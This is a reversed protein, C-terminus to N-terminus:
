GGLASITGKLAISIVKAGLLIAGGIVAWFLAAKAEEIKKANGQATVFQFGAYVIFLVLVPLGIQFLIDLVKELLASVSTTSGLPNPFDTRGAPLQAFAVFPLFVIIYKLTKM